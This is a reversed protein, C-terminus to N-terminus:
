QPPALQVQERQTSRHMIMSARLNKGSMTTWMGAFLENEEEMM